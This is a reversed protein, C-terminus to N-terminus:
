SPPEPLVVTSTTFPPPAGTSADRSLLLNRPTLGSEQGAARGPSFGPVLAPLHEGVGRRTGCSPNNVVAESSRCEPPGNEPSRPLGPAFPREINRDLGEQTTPFPM